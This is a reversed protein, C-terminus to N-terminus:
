LGGWSRACSGEATIPVRLRMGCHNVLADLVIESVMEFLEEDLRLIISDHYQLTWKINLGADQMARIQPILHIMSKQILGQAGGQIRHNVAQRKAEAAEKRDNSWVAPLYRVMGWCDRVIGTRSVDNEVDTFYRACGRYLKLWELRFKRCTKEDWGTAGAIRMQTELGHDSVGYPIGFNIRKAFFRQTKTVDDSRIGFMKAATETHVDRGDILLQCLLPDESEHALVRTEIQSFDWEGFVEGDSCIYCDRVKKGYESHKPQALLNPDKTALRRTTTRTTLVRCRATFIDIDEPAQELIPDCFSTKTHEHDRWDFVDSVADDTYRLHEISAKSTSMSGLKTRKAVKLGRRRLLSGVQQSSKPNFPKDDYYRHSIRAQLRSMGDQMEDALSQFRQRSASMGTSQMEEFIPLIQMGDSMLSLLDQKRLQDLLRPYLRFGADADRCSYRVAADFDKEALARMSGIPMNGLKEEVQRRMGKDIQKWREQIDTPSGDKDVKGSQFDDLINEVRRNISWPKCTKFTGDNQLEVTMEPKPWDYTLALNLYEIQRETGLVGVTEEHSLMKMGCWRWALPKLGQPELRLLYASYMTDFLNAQSLDLGFARCVEIDHMAINSGVFITGAKIRREVAQLGVRFDDRKVRLLYGTGAVFCAQLSWPDDPMGETDFGLIDTEADDLLEALEEGSVDRYEERGEYEDIRYDIKKGSKIRSLTEAVQSYDQHIISRAEVKYFGAAPHVCPLITCDNPARNSRSSDFAGAKHPLGHVADLEASEGLFFRASFRGVAVILDPSVRDIEELLHPTWYEIQEPSPDPNGEQYLKVVNTLYFQSPSLGFHSLYQEQEQGARGVFPRSQKSEEIGPAEGVIMWRCPIPGFGPVITM